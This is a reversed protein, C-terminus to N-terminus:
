LLPLDLERRRNNEERVWELDDYAASPVWLSYRRRRSEKSNDDDKLLGISRFFDAHEEMMKKEGKEQLIVKRTPKEPIIGCIPCKYETQTAIYHRFCRTHFKHKCSLKYRYWPESGKTREYRQCIMCYEWDKTLTRCCRLITYELRPNKWEPPEPPLEM